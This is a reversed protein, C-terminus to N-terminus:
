LKKSRYQFQKRITDRDTNMLRALRAIIAGQTRKHVATLEKLTAGEDFRKLLLGEEYKTWKMGVNVRESPVKKKENPNYSETVSGCSHKKHSDIALTTEMKEDISKQEQEPIFMFVIFRWLPKNYMYLSTLGGYLDNEKTSRFIDILSNLSCIINYNPHLRVQSSIKRNAKIMIQRIRERTIVYDSGITDLTEKLVIRRTWIDKERDTLRSAELLLRSAWATAQEEFTNSEENQTDNHYDDISLIRLLEDYIISCLESSTQKQSAFNALSAAKEISLLTTTGAIVNPILSNIEVLTKSGLQPTNYLDHENLRLLDAFSSVSLFQLRNQARKSMKIRQIKLDVYQEPDVHYIIYYPQTTPSFSFTSVSPNRSETSIVYQKKSPTGNKHDNKTIEYEEPHSIARLAEDIAHQVFLSDTDASFSMVDCSRFKISMLDGKNTVYFLFRKSPLSVGIIDSSGRIIAEPLIQKVREFMQMFILFANGLIEHLEGSVIYDNDM